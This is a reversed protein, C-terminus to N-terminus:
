LNKNLLFQIGPNKRYFYTNSILAEQFNGPPTTTLVAQNGQQPGPDLGEQPVLIGWPACCFFFLLFLLGGNADGWLHSTPAM